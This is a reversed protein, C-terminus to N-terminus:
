MKLNSGKLVDEEKSSLRATTTAYKKEYAATIAAPLCSISSPVQNEGQL